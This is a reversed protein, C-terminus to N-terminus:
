SSFRFKGNRIKVIRHVFKNEPFLSTGRNCYGQKLVVHVWNHTGSGSPASRVQFLKLVYLIVTTSDPETLSIDNPGIIMFINLQNLIDFAHRIREKSSMERYVDQYDFLTPDHYHILVNFLLGDAWSSTFNDVVAGPYGQCCSACWELLKAEEDGMNAVSGTQNVNNSNSLANYPPQLRYDSSEVASMNLSDSNSNHNNQHFKDAM